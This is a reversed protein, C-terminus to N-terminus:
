SVSADPAPWTTAISCHMLLTKGSGTACWFALKNLQEPTYPPLRDAEAVGASFSDVQRNLEALLGAADSFYRDLYIESFLLALYQFYKPLVRQGDRARRATIAQWHRVINQDYALLADRSLRARDFLRVALAHYFRSVNDDDFGELEPDDLGKALDDFSAVAFLGLLWQNLVLRQDFPLRAARRSM